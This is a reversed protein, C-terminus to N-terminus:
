RMRIKRLKGLFVTEVDDIIITDTRIGKRNIFEAGSDRTTVEPDARESVLEVDPTIYWRQDPDDHNIKDTIFQQTIEVNPDLANAVGPRVFIIRRAKGFMPTCGLLGTNGGGDKCTCSTQSM